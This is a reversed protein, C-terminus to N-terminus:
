QYIGINVNRTPADLDYLFTSRICNPMLAKWSKNGCIHNESVDQPSSTM